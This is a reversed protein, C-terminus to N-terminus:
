RNQLLPRPLNWLLRRVVFCVRVVIDKASWILVLLIPDSGEAPVTRSDHGAAKDDEAGECSGASPAWPDPMGSADSWLLRRVVFCARVVIDKASWILVLLIPDSGEAPV